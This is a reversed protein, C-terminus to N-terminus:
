ESDYFKRIKKGVDDNKAKIGPIAIFSALIEKADKKSMKNVSKGNNKKIVKVNDKKSKKIQIGNNEHSNEESENLESIGQMIISIQRRNLGMVYDISWGFKSM